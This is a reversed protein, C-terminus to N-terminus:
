YVISGETAQEDHGGNWNCIGFECGNLQLQSFCMLQHMLIDLHRKILRGLQVVKFDVTLLQFAVAMLEFYASNTYPAPHTSPAPLHHTTYHDHNNNEDQNNNNRNDNLEM